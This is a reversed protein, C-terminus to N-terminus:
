SIVSSGPLPKWTDKPNTILSVQQIGFQTKTTNPADKMQVEIRKVWEPNSFIVNQSQPVGGAFRGDAKTPIWGTAEHLKTDDTPSVLIRAADPPASWDIRVGDVLSNDPDVRATFAFVKGANETSVSPGEASLFQPVTHSKFHVPNLVKIQQGGFADSKPVVIQGQHYM